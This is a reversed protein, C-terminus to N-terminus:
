RDLDTPSNKAWVIVNFDNQNEDQWIAKIAKWQISQNLGSSFQIADRQIYNQIYNQLQIDNPQNNQTEKMRETDEHIMIDRVKM